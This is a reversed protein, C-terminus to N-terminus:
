RKSLDGAVARRAAILDPLGADADKWDPLFESYSKAAAAHDGALGAARAVAARALRICCRSCM